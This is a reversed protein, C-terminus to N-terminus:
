SFKSKIFPRFAYDLDVLMTMLEEVPQEFNNCVWDGVLGLCGSLFFHAYPEIEETSNTLGYEMRWCAVCSSKFLDSIRNIFFGNVNKGFILRCLKKNDDIYRFLVGFFVKPDLNYEDTLIDSIEALIAEEMQGYLDYIDKFNAYFTSRHVDAKDTLEKVTINQINKEMLLEALGERLARKTKRVRRDEQAKADM